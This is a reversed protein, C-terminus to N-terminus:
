EPLGGPYRVPFPAPLHAYAQAPDTVDAGASAGHREAAPDHVYAGGNCDEGIHQRAGVSLVVCGREGAGLIMHRAGPPCHVFTEAEEESWGTLPVNHGRGPREIWRADRANVVFWGPGAPVLGADTEQLRAEEM